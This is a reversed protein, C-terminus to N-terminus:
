PWITLEDGSFGIEVLGSPPESGTQPPASELEDRDPQVLNDRESCGIFLAVLCTIGWCGCFGLGVRVGRMGPRKTSKSEAPNQSVVIGRKDLNIRLDCVSHSRKLRM